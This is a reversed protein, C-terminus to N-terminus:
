NSGIRVAGRVECPSGRGAVFYEHQTQEPTHTILEPPFIKQTCDRSVAAQHRLAERRDNSRTEEAVAETSRGSRSCTHTM